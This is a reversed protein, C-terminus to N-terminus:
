PSQGHGTQQSRCLQTCYHRLATSPKDLGSVLSPCPLHSKCLMCVIIAFVFDDLYFVNITMYVCSIFKSFYQPIMFAYRHTNYYQRRKRKLIYWVVFPLPFHLYLSVVDVSFDMPPVSDPNLCFVFCCRLFPLCANCKFIDIKPGTQKEERSGKLMKKDWPEFQPQRSQRVAEKQDQILYPQATLRARGTSQRSDQKVARWRLLCTWEMRGRCCHCHLAAAAGRSIDPPAAPM